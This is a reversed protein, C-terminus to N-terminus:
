FGKLKAKEFYNKFFTILSEESSMDVSEANTDTVDQPSLHLITKIDDSPRLKTIKKTKKDYYFYASELKMYKTTQQAILGNEDATAVVKQNTKLLQGRENDVLVEYYFNKGKQYQSSHVFRSTIVSDDRTIKLTFDKIDENVDMSDKGNLFSVTQNQANYKLKYDTYLRGDPTSITGTFWEPYLFPIGLVKQGDIITYYGTLYLEKKVYFGDEGSINVINSFASTNRPGVAPGQMSQAMAKNLFLAAIVVIFASLKRM